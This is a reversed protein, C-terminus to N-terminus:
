SLEYEWFEVYEPMLDFVRQACTVLGKDPEQDRRRVRPATIRNGHLEHEEKRYPNNANFEGISGVGPLGSEVFFKIKELVSADTCLDEYKVKLCSARRFMELQYKFDKNLDRALVEPSFGRWFRDKGQKVRYHTSIYIDRPDRGTLIIRMNPFHSLYAHWRRHHIEKVGIQAVCSLLQPVLEKKFADLAHDPALLDGLLSQRSSREAFARLDIGYELFIQRDSSKVTFRNRALKPERFIFCYPVSTLAESLM